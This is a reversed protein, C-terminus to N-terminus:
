STWKEIDWVLYLASTAMEIKLNCLWKKSFSNMKNVLLTAVKRSNIMEQRTTKMEGAKWITVKSKRIASGQLVHLTCNKWCIDQMKM